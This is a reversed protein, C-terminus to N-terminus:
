PAPKTEAPLPETHWEFILEGSMLATAPPRLPEFRAARAIELAHQDAEKSASSALLTASFVQGDPRVLVQAVTNTLLDAARYSALEPPNRLARQALAGAVRLRSNTPAPAGIPFTAPPEITPPLKTEFALAPFLNTQMFQNFATGLSAMPLPLLRLPESWRFPTAEPPGTQLWAAGAFGRRQPLAFLAPDNVALWESDAPAPQLVPAPAPPRRTPPKRDTLASILGLHALFVLLILLWRRVPSWAPPEPSAVNM